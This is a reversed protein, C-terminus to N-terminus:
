RAVKTWGPTSISVPRIAARILRWLGAVPVAQMGIASVLTGLRARPLLRGSYMAVAVAVGLGLLVSVPPYIATLCAVALWFGAAGVTVRFLKHGIFLRGVRSARLARVAPVQERFLGEVIRVRRVWQERNTAPDEITAINDVVGVRKGQAAVACALWLDDCIARPPMPVFDVRRMAIMEGIVSVTGISNSLARKTSQEHRWFRSERDGRERKNGSVMHWRELEGVVLAPWDQPTIECNADTFVVIDATSAAVGRNAAAPKGERGTEIVVDAGSTRAADATASDSAVFTISAPGDYGDLARRLTSVTHPVMSSELYAPVIVEIRPLAPLTPPYTVVDPTGYRMELPLQIRPLVVGLAFLSIGALVGITLYLSM